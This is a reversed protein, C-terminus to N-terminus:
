KIPAVEKEKMYAIIRESEDTPVFEVVKANHVNQWLQHNAKEKKSPEDGLVFSKSKKDAKITHETLYLFSTIESQLLTANKEFDMSHGAVFACNKGFVDVHVPAILDKIIEGTVDFNTNAYASAAKRFKNRITTFSRTKPKIIPEFVEEAYIYKRFLTKFVEYDVNLDLTVPASYQILNNNYRSLYSLYPESVAHKEESQQNIFIDVHEITDHIQDAMGKLASLGLKRGNTSLLKAVINFKAESFHFFTKKPTVCLLGINFKEDLKPNTAISVISYYTKM